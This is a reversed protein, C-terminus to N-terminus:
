ARAKLRRSVQAGDYLPKKSKISAALLRVVEEASAEGKKRKLLTCSAVPIKRINDGLTEGLEDRIAKHTLEENALRDKDTVLDKKNLAVVISTIPAKVEPNLFYGNLHSLFRKLWNLGRKDDGSQFDAHDCWIVLSVVDNERINEIQTEFSDEGPTDILAGVNLKQDGIEDAVKDSKKVDATKFTQTEDAYLGDSLLTRFSTKGSEPPGVLIFNPSLLGKLLGTKRAFQALPKSNNILGKVSGIANNLKGANAAVAGIATGVAAIWIPM